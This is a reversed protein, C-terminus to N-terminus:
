EASGRMLGIVGTRVLERIGFKTLLKEAGSVKNEDGVIEITMSTEAVDVVKGRFIDVIQTIEQRTKDNAAVKILVLEREIAKDAPLDFVKMTDILKYLQKIIQELDQEDGEAVITMRSIDPTETTGVALSEINFGRRAFLGAVRTLVGPKNEVVVSIIHRM